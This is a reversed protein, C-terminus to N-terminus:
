AVVVVRRTTACWVAEPCKWPSVRKVEVIRDNPPINFRGLYVTLGGLTIEVSISISTVLCISNVFM